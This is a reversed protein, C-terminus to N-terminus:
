TLQLGMKRVVERNSPAVRVCHGERRVFKSHHVVVDGLALAVDSALPFEHFPQAAATIGGFDRLLEEGLELRSKELMAGVAVAQQVAGPSASM